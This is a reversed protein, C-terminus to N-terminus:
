DNTQQQNRKLLEEITMQLVPHVAQADMDALPRLAFDREHMKPHPIMLDNESLVLDGYMLIDLDLTRPGWKVRQEVGPRGTQQEIGALEGLLEGPSLQTDLQAAANLYAGQEIPGVPETEYVASFGTLTTQPLEGLRLKALDIYGQRDGLNSGIGIFVNKM